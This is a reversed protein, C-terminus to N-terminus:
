ERKLILFSHRQLYEQSSSKVKQFNEVQSVSLECSLAIIQEIIKLSEELWGGCGMLLEVKL